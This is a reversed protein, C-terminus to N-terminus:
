RLASTLAPVYVVALIVACTVLIFPMIAKTLSGLKADSMAAAVFLGAGVPPTLLGLTLTLCTMVGFHVPDIGYTGTAIPLLIPVLVILAAIGDLVMGVLMLFVFVLVMFTTPDSTMGQLWAAATQPVQNFTLVWGFVKASAILFLVTATNRATRALAPSLHAWKLEGFVVGGIVAALLTAVAASETPTVIGLSIGGVIVAPISLTLLAGATARWLDERGGSRTRGDHALRAGVAIVVCLLAFLLLGPLIGGVFMAGISVQGIVGYIIFIMSPPIIPGLLGSAATLAASFTRSYGDREMEPVMVRSMIAIQATASGMISALLLNACLSVYAISHPMWGLWARAAVVIRRTIGGENMLEGLLIFLPIALLDFVEISNFLIQPLSDLLRFNGTSFVFAFTSAILVFAIPLGLALTVVFTAVISM